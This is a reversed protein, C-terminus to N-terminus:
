YEKSFNLLIFLGDLYKCNILLKEFELFHNYMIFLKLYKLNSCNLYIAQILLKYNIDDYYTDGLNIEILNGHANKIISTLFKIPIGRTKLIQLFPLFLNELRNWTHHGNSHENQLELVKLNVFFSLINTVPPINSEYYQINDSHLTLSSELDEYFSKEVQSYLKQNILRVSLLKKATKILKLIGYNGNNSILIKLEKISKCIETLGAIVDDNVNSNCRLFQLESFCRKTRSILHIQNSFENPM